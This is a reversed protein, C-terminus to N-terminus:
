LVLTRFANFINSFLNFVVVIHNKDEEKKKNKKYYEWKTLIKQRYRASSKYCGRHKRYASDGMNYACIGGELGFEKSYKELVRISCRVNQIPIFLEKKKMGCLHKGTRIDIQGLGLWKGNGGFAKYNGSSEALILSTLLLHSLKSDEIEVAQKTLEFLKNVSLYGGWATQILSVYVAAVGFL